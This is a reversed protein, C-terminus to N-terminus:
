REDERYPNPAKYWPDDIQGMAEDWAIKRQERIFLTLWRDFKRAKSPYDGHILGEGAFADRIDEIELESM